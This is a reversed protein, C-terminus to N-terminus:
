INSHAAEQLLRKAADLAQILENKWSSMDGTQNSISQLETAVLSMSNSSTREKQTFKTAYLGIGSQSLTGLPQAIKSDALALCGIMVGLNVTSSIFNWTGQKGLSAASEDNLKGHQKKLHDIQARERKSFKSMTSMIEAVLENILLLFNRKSEPTDRTDFLSDIHSPLPLKDELVDNDEKLKELTEEVKDWMDPAIECEEAVEKVKAALKADPAALTRELTLSSPSATQCLIKSFIDQARSDEREIETITLPPEFSSDSTVIM